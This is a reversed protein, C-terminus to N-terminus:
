ALVEIRYDEIVPNALLKSCMQNVHAEDYRALKLEIQKGIRVGEVEEYGLKTLSDAVARGASDLLSAKLTVYVRVTVM